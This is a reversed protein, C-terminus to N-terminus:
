PTGDGTLLEDLRAAANRMLAAPRPIEDIELGGWGPAAQVVPDRQPARDAHRMQDYLRTGDQWPSGALLRANRQRSRLKRLAEVALAPIPVSGSWDPLREVGTGDRLRSPLSFSALV